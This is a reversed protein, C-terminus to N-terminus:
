EYHGKAEFHFSHCMICTSPTQSSDNRREFASGHCDRCTDIDPMLLDHASGSEAAAHCLVCSSVETDHEAHSFNAHPFFSETLRVPLVFWPMDSNNDVKSVEHCNTCAQREFLDEAVNLARTRAEVAAKDRDARTLAAGPRRIRQEVADPDAGLLRASYYEVLAQVVAAADGHPVVRTPDDPDFNLTHCGSCHEDMSIPLMRAGGPEPVHCDACEVIRKGDPTIIGEEDLHVKHDFKLNSRDATMAEALAVHEVGWEVERTATAIPRLLSVRFDPHADLFDDADQLGADAPLDQHCDACLGQHQKVLEPPENHELHCSACRASGLVALATSAVHRDATHCAMCADDPVRQFANTHCNECDAATSAHGSHVPGALWWGDDPLLDSGRMVSAVGPGLLSLGPLAFAVIIIIVSLSWSLRRKSWGAVGTTPTTWSQELHEAGAEDSLEFSLAFDVGDPSEIVRMINAGVEIVDGVALKADRQSRGNVTVGALASTTIHVGGNKPEIVAHEFRARRDRLHLMQDTARGITIAPASIIKDNHEPDGAANKRLFRVLYRV